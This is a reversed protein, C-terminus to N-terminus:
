AGPLTDAGDTRTAAMLLEQVSARITRAPAPSGVEFAFRGSTARAIAAAADFGLQRGAEAHVPVGEELWVCGEAADSVVALVGTKRGAELMQLLAFAPIEALDGHLGEGEAPKAGSAPREAAPQPADLGPEVECFTIIFGGIEIRDGPRLVRSGEVREGNVLTGNTSGLDRLVYRGDEFRVEAHNRSAERSPVQLGCGAGRGLVCAQDRGLRVPPQPPAFLLPTAQADM